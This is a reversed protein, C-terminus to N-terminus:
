ERLASRRRRRGDERGRWGDFYCQPSQRIGFKGVGNGLHFDAHVTLVRFTFVLVETPFLFSLFFSKLSLIM